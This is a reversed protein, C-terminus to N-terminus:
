NEECSVKSTAINEIDFKIIDILYKHIKLNNM